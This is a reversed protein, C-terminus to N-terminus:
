QFRNPALFRTLNLLTTTSPGPCILPLKYSVNVDTQVRSYVQVIKVPKFAQQSHNDSVFDDGISMM